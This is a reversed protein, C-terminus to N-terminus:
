PPIECQKFIMEKLHTKDLRQSTFIVPIALMLIPCSRIRLSSFIETGGETILQSMTGTKRTRLHVSASESPRVHM